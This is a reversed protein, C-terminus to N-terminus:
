LILLFPFAMLLATVILTASYAPDKGQQLRRWRILQALSAAALALLFSLYVMFELFYFFGDLDSSSKLPFISITWLLAIGLGILAAILASRGAPMLAILAFGALAPGVLFIFALLSQIM